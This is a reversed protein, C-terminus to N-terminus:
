QLDFLLRRFVRLRYRWNNRLFGHKLLLLMLSFRNEDLRLYSYFAEIIKRDQKSPEYYSLFYALTEARNDNMFPPKSLKLSTKKQAKNDSANNAHIRYDILQKNLTVRVGFAENVLALWYDHYKLSSPFPLSLQALKSNMLITNGMVGNYGLIKALSKETPLKIHKHDFFSPHICKGKDDVMRLDSHALLPQDPHEKELAKLRHLCLELKNTHWIDDQDCLAIYDSKTSLLGIAQEFNKVFGLRVKNIHLFINPYTETYRSAISISADDSGDDFIHIEINQHSQTIVSNLQRVLFAEAQYTCLAVSILSGSSHTIFSL